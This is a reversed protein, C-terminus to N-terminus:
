KAANDAGKNVSSEPGNAVSPGEPFPTYDSTFVNAVAKRSGGVVVRFKCRGFLVRLATRWGKPVITSHVFPDDIELSNLLHDNEWIHVTFQKESNVSM